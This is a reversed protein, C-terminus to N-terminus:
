RIETMIEFFSSLCVAMVVHVRKLGIILKNYEGWPPAKNERKMM